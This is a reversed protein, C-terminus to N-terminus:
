RRVQVRAKPPFFFVAFPFIIFQIKFEKTVPLQRKQAKQSHPPFGTNGQFGKGQTVIQTTVCGKSVQM